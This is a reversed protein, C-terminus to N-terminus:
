PPRRDRGVQGWPQKLFTRRMDGVVGCPSELKLVTEEELNYAVTLQFYHQITEPNGPALAPGACRVLAQCMCSHQLYTHLHEEFLQGKGNAAGGREWGYM